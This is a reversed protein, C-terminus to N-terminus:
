KSRLLGQPRLLLSLIVCVLGIMPGFSGPLYLNGIAEGLGIVLAGILAGPFSGLGGIIVIALASFIYDGGTIPSFSRIPLLLSSALGACAGSIAFSLLRLRSVDIGALQAAEPNSSVARLCLGLHTKQLVVYLVVMAVVSIFFSILQPLPLIVQGIDISTYRYPSQISQYDASFFFLMSNQLVFLLGVMVGIGTMFGGGVSFRVFFYISASLLAVLPITIITTLYVDVGLGKVVWAGLYLGIVLLEGYALNLVRTVDFVVVLGFAILAYVGSNLIGFVISQTLDLM